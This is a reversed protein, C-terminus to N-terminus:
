KKHWQENRQATSQQDQGVDEEEKRYAHKAQSSMATANVTEMGTHRTQDAEKEEGGQATKRTREKKKTDLEGLAFSQQRTRLFWNRCNNEKLEREKQM